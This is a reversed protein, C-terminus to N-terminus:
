AVVEQLVRGSRRNQRAKKMSYSGLHSKRREILIRGREKALHQIYRSDKFQSAIERIVRLSKTTMLVKHPISGATKVLFPILEPDKPNVLRRLAEDPDRPILWRAVPSIVHDENRFCRNMVTIPGPDDPMTFEPPTWEVPERMCAFEWRNEWSNFVPKPSYEKWRRAPTFNERAVEERFLRPTKEQKRLIDISEEPDIEECFEELRCVDMVDESGAEKRILSELEAVQDDSLPHHKKIEHIIKVTALDVDTGNNSLHKKIISMFTPTRPSGFAILEDTVTYEGQNGYLLDKQSINPRSPGNDPWFSETDERVGRKRHIEAYKDVGMKFRVVWSHEDIVAYWCRQCHPRMRTMRGLDDTVFMEGQPNLVIDQILPYRVM